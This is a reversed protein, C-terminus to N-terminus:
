PGAPKLSHLHPVLPPRVEVAEHLDPRCWADPVPDLLHVDMGIYMEILDVACQTCERLSGSSDSWLTRWEHVGHHARSECVSAQGPLVDIALPEAVSVALSRMAAELYCSASSPLLPPRHAMAGRM